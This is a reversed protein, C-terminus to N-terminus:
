YETKILFTESHHYGFVRVVGGSVAYFVVILCKRVTVIYLLRIDNETSARGWVLCSLEPLDRSAMTSNPPSM